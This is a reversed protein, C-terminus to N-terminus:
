TICRLNGSWWCCTHLLCNCRAQLQAILESQAMSGGPQAELVALVQWAPGGMDRLTNARLDCVDCGGQCLLLLRMNTAPSRGDFTGAVQAQRCGAPREIYSMM